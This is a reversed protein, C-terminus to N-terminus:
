VTLWYWGKARVSLVDQFQSLESLYIPHRSVSLVRLWRTEGAYTLSVDAVFKDRILKSIERAKEESDKSITSIQLMLDFEIRGHIACGPTGNTNENLERISICTKNTEELHSDALEPSGVYIQYDTAAAITSDELLWWQVINIWDTHDTM